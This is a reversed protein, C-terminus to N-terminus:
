SVLTVSLIRTTTEDILFAESTRVQPLWLVHQGSALLYCTDRKERPVKEDILLSKISKKGGDKHIQLFDGQKRTRIVVADIIKDYDFWKTYCNKPITMEGQVNILEFRFECNMEQVSVIGPVLVQYEKNEIESKSHQKKVILTTYGRQVIIHYPLAIQKGSQNSILQQALQIHKEEIDKKSKSVQEIAMKIILNQLILDEEQLLMLDLEIRNDYITAIRSFAQNTQKRLYTAVREMEKTFSVIHELSKENIEEKVYPLLYNRIKNRTYDLSLNSSDTCYAISEEKLFAEIVERKTELLPRVIQQSVARIGSMGEIKTGRFLHFLVTEANDNMNHAIAIKHCNQQKCEEEFAKYRVFRGAEELSWRKEKALKKVDVKICNVSIGHKLCFERVFEEEQNAEEGRILHNIHVVFLTLSYEESIRMLVNLLCMSDAGGSVGVVVRDNKEFMHQQKVFQRIQNIM